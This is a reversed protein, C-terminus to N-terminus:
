GIMWLRFDLGFLVSPRTESQRTHSGVVSSTPWSFYCTGLFLSLQISKRNHFINGFSGFSFILFIDFWHIILRAYCLHCWLSWSAPEILTHKMSVFRHLVTVLLFSDWCYGRWLSMKPIGLPSTQHTPTFSSPTTELAGHAPVNGSQVQAGPDRLMYIIWTIHLSWLKLSEWWM